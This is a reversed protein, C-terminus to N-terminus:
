GFRSVPNDHPQLDTREHSALPIILLQSHHPNCHAHLQPCHSRVPIFFPRTIISRLRLHHPSFFHCSTMTKRQKHVAEVALTCTGIVINHQLYRELHPLRSRHHQNCLERDPPLLCWGRSGVDQGDPRGRLRSWAPAVPADEGESFVRLTTLERVHGGTAWLVVLCSDALM